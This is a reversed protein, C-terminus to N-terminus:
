YGYTVTHNGLTPDAHASCTTVVRALRDGEYSYTSRSFPLGVSTGHLVDNVRGAGDRFYYVADVLAEPRAADPAPVSLGHCVEGLLSPQPLAPLRGEAGSGVRSLLRGEDDYRYTWGVEPTDVLREAARLGDEYILETRAQISGDQAEVHAGVLTSDDYEFVVRPWGQTGLVEDFTVLEINGDPRYVAGAFELPRSDDFTQERIVRGTEDRVTATKPRPGSWVAADDALPSPPDIGCSLRLGLVIPLASAACPHRIAAHTETLPGTPAEGCATVLSLTCLLRAHKM